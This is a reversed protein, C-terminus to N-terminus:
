SAQAPTGPARDGVITEQVVGNDDWDIRAADARDLVQPGRTKSFYDWAWNVFANIRNRVGLLLMAHVGLWSLFAIVGHVEWRRPGVEAIASGRGIMAMIGKDRYRFPRRPQGAFDALINGAAWAGSQMAVSGLQPHPDEGPGPINAVDGIAYVGTFGDVTLDPQVDIRGGRGQPLGAADALSPAKIGGGWVACRTKLTRGDGLTVHDPAVETVATGLHVRVGKRRMVEAVYAHARESFPGLLAHGLDVLHVEAAAVDLDRFEVTMTEHILDALAGALEVGTPGGGVIVFRVAGQEVRSPDRDADEFVGIVRSRLHEADTLSYLPFANADAGPTGFFNPQSGAALVIVDASWTEGDTSTLTRAVPDITAIEAMKVDVHPYRHFLKRLPYAIDSGSLASTAVQYLLPQFQHYNNRDILTLRIGEQEALKQACGLGAFGGGVIVVHRQGGPASV